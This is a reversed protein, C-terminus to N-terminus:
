NQFHEVACPTLSVTTSCIVRRVAGIAHDIGQRSVDLHTVARIRMPAVAMMWVGEARLAACVSDATVGKDVVDFYVINTEVEETDVSVDAIDALGEALHRANEHDESLREVHHDLAYLAGAAIIGAQM